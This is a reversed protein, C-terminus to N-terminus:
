KPIPQLLRALLRDSQPASARPLRTRPQHRSKSALRRRLCDLCRGITTAASSDALSAFRATERLSKGDFYYAHLVARCRPSLSVMAERLAIRNDTAALADSSTTSPVPRRQVTLRCATFRVCQARFVTFALGAPSTVDRRCRLLALATEQIVDEADISNIHFRSLAYRLYRRRLQTNKLLQETVDGLTTHQPTTPHM